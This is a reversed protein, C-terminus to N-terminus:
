YDRRQSIKMTGESVRVAYAIDDGEYALTAMFFPSSTQVYSDNDEETADLCQERSHSQVNIYGSYM